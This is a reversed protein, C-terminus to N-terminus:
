NLIEDVGHLTPPKIMVTFPIGTPMYILDGPEGCTIVTKTKPFEDRISNLITWGDKMPLRLDIFVLDYKGARLKGLAEEGTMAVDHSHKRARLFVSLLEIDDANDEVILLCRTKKFLNRVIKGLSLWGLITDPAIM